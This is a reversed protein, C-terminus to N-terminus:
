NDGSFIKRYFYNLKVKKSHLILIFTIKLHINETFLIPNIQQWMFRKLLSPKIKKKKSCVIFYFYKQM